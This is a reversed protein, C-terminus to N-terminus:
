VYKVLIQLFQTSIYTEVFSALILGIIPIISFISHKLILLKINERNREKKIAKYVNLGSIAMMTMSILVFINHLALSSFALIIGKGKGVVAIIASITYGLCFSKYLIIGYIIPIGIIALGLFWLLIGMLLNRNISKKLIELKDIDNDKVNTIIENINDSIQTQNQTDTSNIKMIGMIIGILIILITVFYEKFNNNIHELIIKTKVNTRKM